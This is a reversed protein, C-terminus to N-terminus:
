GFFCGYRDRDIADVLDQLGRSRPMPEYLHWKLDARMWYLRWENVTRVYKAKAIPTELEEGPLKWHPRVEYMVVDHKDISYEMRLRDRIEPKTKVRCYGGVIKEIRALDIETFAM